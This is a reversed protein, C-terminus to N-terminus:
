DSAPPAQSKRELFVALDRNYVPVDLRQAFEEFGEAKVRIYYTGPAVDTFMFNGSADTYTQDIPRSSLAELSVMIPGDASGEELSVSGQISSEQRQGSQPLLMLTLAVKLPASIQM